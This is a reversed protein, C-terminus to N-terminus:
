GCLCRFTECHRSRTQESEAIGRHPRRSVRCLTKGRAFIASRIERHASWRAWNWSPSTSTLFVHFTIRLVHFRFSWNKRWNGSNRTPKRRARTKVSALVRTLVRIVNGDLIPTPQNFAISCIAGATYRGIGPLALVDDFNDPFRGGHKEMIQKAAKQLNRARTYYGLGEWLKHIKESRAKGGGRHDATRADLTEL